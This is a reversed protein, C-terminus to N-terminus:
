LTGQKTEHNYEFILQGGGPKQKNSIRFLTPSQSDTM